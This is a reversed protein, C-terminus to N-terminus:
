ALQLKEKQKTAAVFKANTALTIIHSIKHPYRAALQVALMGGLSWGVLVCREPLQAAILTVVAELYFEPIEKSAGFGPLDLAIINAISQLAPILGQWSHSAGGWGHLLVIDDSLPKLLACSYRHAALAHESM